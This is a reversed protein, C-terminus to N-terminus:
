PQLAKKLKRKALMIRWSVTSEACGLARAADAHSHNEFYVLVVAARQHDPLDALAAQVRDTDVEGTTSPQASEAFDQQRRRRAHVSRLHDKCLNTAVRFLWAKSLTSDTTSAARVFVDQAVDEGAAVDLLFRAAFSRVSPYFREFIATFATEDGDQVSAFLAEDSCDQLSPSMCEDSNM